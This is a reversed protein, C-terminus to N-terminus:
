GNDANKWEEYSTRIIDLTGEHIQGLSDVGFMKLMVDHSDFPPTAGSLEGLFLGFSEYLPAHQNLVGRDGKFWAFVQQRKSPAKM